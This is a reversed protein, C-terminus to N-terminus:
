FDILAVIFRDNHKKKSNLQLFVFFVGGMCLMRMFYVVIKEGVSCRLCESIM